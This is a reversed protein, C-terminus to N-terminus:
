FVQENLDSLVSSLENLLSSLTDPVKYDEESVNKYLVGEDSFYYKNNENVIINSLNSANLFTNEGIYTVASPITISLIGAGAFAYDDITNVTEPLKIKLLEDCGLFSSLGIRKISKNLNIESLSNCQYFMESPIASIKSEPNIYFKELSQHEKFDFFVKDSSLDPLNNLNKIKISEIHDAAFFAYQGCSSLSTLNLNTLSRCKFFARSGIERVNSLDNENIDLKNNYAFAEDEIIQLDSLANDKTSISLLKLCNRFAAYKIIKVKKPLILTSLSVCNEFVSENIVSIDIESFNPIEALSTLNSFANKGIFKINSPEEFRIASIRDCIIASKDPFDKLASVNVEFRTDLFAASDIGTVTFKKGNRNVVAPIEISLPNGYTACLCATGLEENFNYILKYPLWTASLDIQTGVGVNFGNLIIAEDDYFTSFTSDNYKWKDFVCYPKDYMNKTLRLEAGLDCTLQDMEGSISLLENNQDSADGSEFNIYYQGIYKAYLNAPNKGNSVVLNSVLQNNTYLITESNESSTWGLLRYNPYEFTVNEKSFQEDFTYPKNYEFTITIDKDQKKGNFLIEYEPDWQACLDITDNSLWSIDSLEFEGCNNIYEENDNIKYKWKLFTHWRKTYKNANLNEPVNVALKQPEMDGSIPLGDDDAVKKFNIFYPYSWYAYLNIIGNSPKFSPVSTEPTLLANLLTYPKINDNSDPSVSWSRAIKKNDVRASVIGTENFDLIYTSLIDSLEDGVNEATQIYSVGRNCNSNYQIASLLPIKSPSPTDSGGGGGGSSLQLFYASTDTATANWICTQNYLPSETDVQNIIISLLSSCQGFANEEISVVSSPITITSLNSCGYFASTEIYKVNNGLVFSTLNTNGNCLNRPIFQIDTSSLNVSKVNKFTNESFVDLINSLPSKNNSYNVNCNISIEELKTCNEFCTKFLVPSSKDNANIILKKINSKAFSSYKVSLQGNITAQNIHRNEHFAYKGITSIQFDISNTTENFSISNETSYNFICSIDPDDSLTKGCNLQKIIISNTKDIIFKYSNKITSCDYQDNNVFTVDSLNYTGIFSTGDNEIYNLTSPLKISTIASTYYFTKDNLSSIKTHSLDIEGTLNLSHSFCGQGIYTVNKLNSFSKISTLKNMSSFAYDGIHTLENTADFIVTTFWNNGSFFYDCLASITYYNPDLYNLKPWWISETENIAWKPINSIYVNSNAPGNYERYPSHLIARCKKHPEGLQNTPDFLLLRFTHLYYSSHSSSNEGTYGAVYSAFRNAYVRVGATRTNRLNYDLICCGFSANSFESGNIYVDLLFNVSHIDGRFFAFNVDLRRTTDVFGYYVYKGFGVTRGFLLGVVLPILVCVSTGRATITFKNSVLYRINCGSNFLLIENSLSEPNGRNDLNSIWEKYEEINGNNPKVELLIDKNKYYYSEYNKNCDVIYHYNGCFEYTTNSSQTIYRNSSDKWKCEINPFTEVFATDAVSTLNFNIYCLQISHDTLLYNKYGKYKTNKIDKRANRTGLLYINTISCRMFANEDIEYVTQPIDIALVNKCDAFSFRGIRQLQSPLIISSFISSNYFAYDGIEIVTAGLIQDPIVLNFDSIDSASVDFGHIIVSSFDDTYKYKLSIFNDTNGVDYIRFYQYEDTEILSVDYTMLERCTGDTKYIQDIFGSISNSFKDKKLQIVTQQNGFYNSIDTCFADTKEVYSYSPDNSKLSFNNKSIDSNYHIM